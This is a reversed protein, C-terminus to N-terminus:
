QRKNQLRELMKKADKALALDAHGALYKNIAKIALDYDKKCEYIRAILLHVKKMSSRLKLVRKANILADDYLKLDILVKSFVYYVDPFPLDKSLLVKGHEYAEAHKGNKQLTKFLNIRATLYGPNIEVAKAFAKEAELTKNSSLLQSGLSNHLDPYTPNRKIQESIISILFDSLNGDKKAYKASSFIAIVESFNPMIDLGKHFENSIEGLSLGNGLIGVIEKSIDNKSSSSSKFLKFFKKVANLRKDDPYFQLAGKIQNEAEDMKGLRCYCIILKVRANKFKPSIRVAKLFCKVADGTENCEEKIVGKLFHVDAYEFNKEIIADLNKFADEYQGLCAQALGLKLKADIYNPNISLAMNFSQIAESVKGQSMLSLGLHLHVDAFKPNAKLVKRHIKEASDWMELNHFIIAMALKNPIDWPSVDYIIKFFEMAGKFDGLNNLCIGIFYNLDSCEYNYELAKQFNHLAQKNNNQAFEIFGLNRHSLGCYFGALKYELFKNLGKEAYVKEFYQLAEVYEMKNYFQMAIKYNKYTKQPIIGLWKNLFAM